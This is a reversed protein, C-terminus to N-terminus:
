VSKPKIKDFVKRKVQVSHGFNILLGVEVGTAKIIKETINSHKMEIEKYNDSM